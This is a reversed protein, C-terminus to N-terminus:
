GSKRQSSGIRNIRSQHLILGFTLSMFPAWFDPEINNKREVTSLYTSIKYNWWYYYLGGTLFLWLINLGPSDIDHYDLEEIIEKAVKFIWVIGAIGFTIMSLFLWGPISRRTLNM